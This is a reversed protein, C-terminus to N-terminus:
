FNLVASGWGMKVQCFGKQIGYAAKYTWDYFWLFSTTDITKGLINEVQCSVQFIYMEYRKTTGFCIFANWAVLNAM